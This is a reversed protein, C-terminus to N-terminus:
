PLVPTAPIFNGMHRSLMRSYVDYGGGPGSGVLLQIRKGKYFDSVADASAPGTAILGCLAASAAMLHALRMSTEM